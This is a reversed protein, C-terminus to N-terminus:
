VNRMDMGYRWLDGHFVRVKFGAGILIRATIEVFAVSRHKGALCGVIITQNELTGDVKDLISQICEDFKPNGKVYDQVAKHTGNLPKLEPRAEPDLIKRVDIAEPSNQYSLGCSILTIM